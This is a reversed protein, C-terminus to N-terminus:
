TIFCSNRIFRRLSVGSSCTYVGERCVEEEVFSSAGCVVAACRRCDHNCGRGGDLGEDERGKRNGSTGAVAADPSVELLFGLFGLLAVEHLNGEVLHDALFIRHVAGDQAGEARHGGGSEIDSLKRVVAQVSGAGVVAEGALDVEDGVAFNGVIGQDHYVGFRLGGDIGIGNSGDSGARGLLLVGTHAAGLVNGKSIVLLNTGVSLGAALAFQLVVIGGNGHAPITVDDFRSIRLRGNDNWGIWDKWRGADTDGNVHELAARFSSPAGRRM